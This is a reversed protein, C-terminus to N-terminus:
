AKGKNTAADHQALRTAEDERIAKFEISDKHGHTFLVWPNPRENEDAMAHIDAATLVVGNPKYKRLVMLLIKEYYGEVQDLIPADNM